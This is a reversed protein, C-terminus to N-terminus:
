AITASTMNTEIMVLGNPIADARIASNQMHGNPRV